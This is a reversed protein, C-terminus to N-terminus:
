RTGLNLIRPAIGGNMWYTMMPHHKTLRKRVYKWSVYKSCLLMPSSGYKNELKRGDTIGVGTSALDLVRIAKSWEFLPITQEFGMRPMSTLRRKERNHQGAYTCAKRRASGGDLSRYWFKYISVYNRFNLGCRLLGSLNTTFRVVFVMLLAFTIAM